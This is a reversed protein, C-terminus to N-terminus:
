HMMTTAHGIAQMDDESLGAFLAVESLLGIKEAFSRAQTSLTLLAAGVSCDPRPLGPLRRCLRDFGLGGPTM